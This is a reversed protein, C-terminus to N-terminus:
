SVSPRLCSHLVIDLMGKLTGQEVAESRGGLRQCPLCTLLERDKKRQIDTSCFILEEM